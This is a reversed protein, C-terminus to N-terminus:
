RLDHSSESHSSGQTGTVHSSAGSDLYWEPAPQNPIGSNSYAAHIMALHEWSPPAPPYYPTSPPSPPQYMPYAQAHAGPCPGLVGAANPPVWGARPSPLAMDYPAFYGTFPSQLPQSPSGHGAYDGRGRGRGRGRDGEAFRDGRGRGSPQQHQHPPAPARDSSGSSHGRDGSGRAGTGSSGGQGRDGGPFSASKKAARQAQSEEALIVRSLVTDFPLGQDGLVVRITELRKDLSHLFQTSLGTETVAHDIDALADTEYRIM